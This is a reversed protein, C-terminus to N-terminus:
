VAGNTVFRGNEVSTRFLLAGLVLCGAHVDVIWDPAFLADGLDILQHMFDDTGM